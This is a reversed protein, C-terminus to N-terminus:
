YKECHEVVQLKEKKVAVVLAKVSVFRNFCKM